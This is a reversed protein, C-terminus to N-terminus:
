GFLSFLFSPLCSGLSYLTHHLHNEDGRSTKETVDDLLVLQIGVVGLDFCLFLLIFLFLSM